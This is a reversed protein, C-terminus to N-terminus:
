TSLRSESSTPDGTKRITISFKPVNKLNLNKDVVTVKFIVNGTSQAHAQVGLFAAFVLLLVFKTKLM